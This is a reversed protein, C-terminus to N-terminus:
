QWHVDMAKNNGNKKEDDENYLAICIDGNPTRKENVMQM